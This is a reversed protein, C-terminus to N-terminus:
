RRLLPTLASGYREVGHRAQGVLERTEALDPVPDLNGSLGVGHELIDAAYAKIELGHRVIRQALVAVLPIVVLLLVLNGIWWWVM